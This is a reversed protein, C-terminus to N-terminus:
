GTSGPPRRYEELTKRIEAKDEEAAVALAREQTAIAAERDGSLALARALTVLARSDKEASLTVARRAAALALALDPAAPQPPTAPADDHAPELIAGALGLLADPDDKGWEDVVRRGFGAAEDKSPGSPPADALMARYLVPVYPFAVQGDLGVMQGFAARAESWQKGHWAARLRPKLAIAEVRRDYRRTAASLDWTGALVQDLAQDLREPHGSFAVRGDRGVIFSWPWGQDQEIAMWELYSKREGDWAIAYGVREGQQALVDEAAKLTSGYDDPGTLGVVVLGRDAYRRQLETLHAMGGVCPGCWPAWIDILYVKGPAFTAVPRGKLWRVAVFPPALAGVRPSVAPAAARAPAGLWLLLLPLLRLTRSARM